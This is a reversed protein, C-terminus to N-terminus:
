NKDKKFDAQYKSESQSHDQTKHKNREQDTEIKLDKLPIDDVFKQDEFHDLPTRGEEREDYPESVKESLKKENRKKTM